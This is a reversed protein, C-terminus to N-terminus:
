RRQTERRAMPKLRDRTVFWVFVAVGIIAIERVIVTPIVRAVLRASVDNMVVPSVPAAANAMAGVLLVANQVSIWALWVNAVSAIVSYGIIRVHVPRLVVEM